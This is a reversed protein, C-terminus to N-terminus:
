PGPFVKRLLDLVPGHETTRSHATDFRGYVLLCFAEAPLTLDAPVPETVSTVSVSDSALEIRFGRAPDTTAVTLATSDGTPRATFRAILDLNDVILAAADPPLVAGPDGVVEIDWTHFAHENLRMAVFEAFGLTMPGMATTFSDRQEPTVGDIGALLDADATLADDRQVAPAKANWEDWVAPAFEDPTPRDAVADDLRRRTIVAGSGLHSLVDAVSWETPYARGTLEAESLGTALGRLRAVSARLAEVHSEAM